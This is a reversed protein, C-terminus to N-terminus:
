QGDMLQPLAWVFFALFRKVADVPGDIPLRPDFLAASFNIGVGLIGAYVSKAVAELVHLM